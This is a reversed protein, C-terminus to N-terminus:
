QNLFTLCETITSEPDKYYDHEHVHLIKYGKLSLFADKALEKKSETHWYSGDFEIIKDEIMFDVHYKHKNLHDIHESLSLIDKHDIRVIVEGTTGHYKTIAQKDQTLKQYIADFLKQSVASVGFGCHKALCDKCISNSSNGYGLEFTYFKLAKSCYTCSEIRNPEYNNFIRYLRETLKGSQLEHDKTHKMISAHLTPDDHIVQKVLGQNATNYGYKNFKEIITRKNYIKSTFIKRYYKVVGVDINLDMAIDKPSSDDYKENLIDIKHGANVFYEPKLDYYEVYKTLIKRSIKYKKSAALVSSGEIMAAVTDRSPMDIVDLQRIEKKTRSKIGFKKFLRMIPQRDIFGYHHGIEDLTMLKEFYLVELENQKISKTNTKQKLNSM